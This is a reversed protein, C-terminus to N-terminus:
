RTSRRRSTQDLVPAATVLLERLPPLAAVGTVALDSRLERSFAPLLTADAVVVITADSARHRLEALRWCDRGTEIGVDAVVIRRGEHLAAM